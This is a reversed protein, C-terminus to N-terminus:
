PDRVVYRCEAGLVRGRDVIFARKRDLFEGEDRPAPQQGRRQM